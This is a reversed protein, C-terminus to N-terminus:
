LMVIPSRATHRQQDSPSDRWQTSVRPPLARQLEDLSFGPAASSDLSRKPLVTPMHWDYCGGAYCRLCVTGLHDFCLSRWMRGISKIRGLETMQM